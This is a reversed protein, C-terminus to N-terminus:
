LDYCEERGTNYEEARDNMLEDVDIEDIVCQIDNHWGLKTDIINNWIWNKINTQRKVYKTHAKNMMVNYSGIDMHSLMPNDIMDNAKGRAIAYEDIMAKQKAIMFTINSDKLKRIKYQIALCSRDTSSLLMSLDREMKNIKHLIRDAEKIYENRKSFFLSIM